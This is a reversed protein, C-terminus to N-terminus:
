SAALPTLLRVLVRPSKLSYTFQTPALGDANMVTGAHKLVKRIKVFWDIKELISPAISMYYTARCLCMGMSGLPM